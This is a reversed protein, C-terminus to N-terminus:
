TLIIPSKKRIIEQLKADFKKLRDVDWQELELYVADDSQPLFMCPTDNDQCYAFLENVLESTADPDRQADYRIFLIEDTKCKLIEACDNLKEIKVTEM